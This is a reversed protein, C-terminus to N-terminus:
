NQKERLLVVSFFLHFANNDLRFLIKNRGKKFTIKQYHENLNWNKIDSFQKRYGGPKYWPKHQLGSSWVLDENVWVKCNDDCGLGSWITVQQDFYLETFGYFTAASNHNGPVFPYSPSQVFKWALFQNNSSPYIASLDVHSEPPNMHVVNEKSSIEFPGIVYWTDLYIRDAQRGYPGISKGSVPFLPQKTINEPLKEAAPDNNYDTFLTDGFMMNSDSPLHSSDEFSYASKGQRQNKIQQYFSALFEQSKIHNKEVNSRMEEPSINEQITDSEAKGRKLVEEALETKVDSKDTKIANAITQIQSKLMQSEHHLKALEKSLEEEDRHSNSQQIKHTSSEIPKSKIEFHANDQQQNNNVANEMVKKIDRMDDIRTNMEARYAQHLYQKALQNKALEKDLREQRGYDTILVKEQKNPNPAQAFWVSLIVLHLLLSGYVFLHKKIHSIFAEIYEM